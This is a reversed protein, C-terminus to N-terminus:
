LATGLRCCRVACSQVYQAQAALAIAQPAAGARGAPSEACAQGLVLSPEVGRGRCVDPTSVRAPARAEAQLGFQGLDLQGAQLAAGFTDLQGRFPGSAVM